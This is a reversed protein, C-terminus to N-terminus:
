DTLEFLPAMVFTGACSTDLGKTTGRDVFNATILGVCGGIYFHHGTHPLIVARSDPFHQKLNPLNTIPDQPDAAGAFALVPVHKSSPFTWLSRPEAREPILSCSQRLVAIRAATYSDFLTGWPGTADLGAWPECWTLQSMLLAGESNGSGARDLPAYDGEAARTIVLPISVAENLENLMRQVVWALQDGTMTVGKGIQAPHVNWATVLAGFQREWRPFARRCDTQSACLKALRDLAHQANTAYRGYYPVDLASAAQLTLTRVSSPHRRLYVQAATAGYSGGVVDLQRYGLAARVADLDDMATRTGYQTADGGFTKLCARLEAKSGLPTTREPCFHANSGGTGRQDVLLIDRNANLAPWSQSLSTADETAAGGPGGEIYTVADKAVPKSWAPLVVVRLEITRGTPKARNEPVFFTGCRADVGQALGETGQVVCPRPPWSRPWSQQAEDSYFARDVGVIVGLGIGAAAVLGVLLWLVWRYPRRVRHPGPHRGTSM